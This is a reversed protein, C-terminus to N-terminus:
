SNFESEFFLTKLLISGFSADFYPVSSSEAM